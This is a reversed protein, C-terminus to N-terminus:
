LTSSSHRVILSPPPMANDTPAKQDMTAILLEVAREAVRDLHLDVATLSPTALRARMGDYRTAIRLEDPIARGL